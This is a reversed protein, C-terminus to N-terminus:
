NSPLDQVRYKEWVQKKIMDHLEKRITNRWNEKKNPDPHDWAQDFRQPDMYGSEVSTVFCM